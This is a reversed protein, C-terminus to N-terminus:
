LSKHHVVNCRLLEVLSFHCHNFLTVRWRGDYSGHPSTVSHEEEGGETGELLEYTTPPLTNCQQM